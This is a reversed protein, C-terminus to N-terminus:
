GPQSRQEDTSYERYEGEERRALRAVRRDRHERSKQWPSSPTLKRSREYIARWMETVAEDPSPTYGQRQKDIGQGLVGALFRSRGDDAGALSAMADEYDIREDFLEAGPRGFYDSPALLLTRVENADGREEWSRARSTYREVQGKQFEADIKNEVLLYVTVNNGGIATM